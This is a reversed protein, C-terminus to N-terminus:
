FVELPRWSRRERRSCKLTKLLTEVISVVLARGSITGRPVDLAQWLEAVTDKEDPLSVSMGYLGRPDVDWDWDPLTLESAWVMTVSDALPLALGPTNETADWVELVISDPTDDDAGSVCSDLVGVENTGKILSLPRGLPYTWPWPLSRSYFAYLFSGERARYGRDM